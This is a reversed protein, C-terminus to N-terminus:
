LLLAQLLLLLLPVELPLWLPLAPALLVTLMGWEPEKGPPLAEDERLLLLLLLPLGLPPIPEMDAQLEPLPLGLAEAERAAAEPLPKAELEKLPVAGPLALAAPLAEPSM